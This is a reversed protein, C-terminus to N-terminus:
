EQTSKCYYTYFIIISVIFIASQGIGFIGGVFGIIGGIFAPVVLWELIWSM